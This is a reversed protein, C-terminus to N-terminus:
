PKVEPRGKVEYVQRVAREDLGNCALGYVTETPVAVLGGRVIIDAAADIDETIIRDEYHSRMLRSSTIGLINLNNWVRRSSKRRIPPLWRTM